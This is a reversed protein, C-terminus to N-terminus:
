SPRNKELLLKLDGNQCSTELERMTVIKGPSNNVSRETDSVLLFESELAMSAKIIANIRAIEDRIMRIAGLTFIDGHDECAVADYPTKRTPYIEYGANQILYFIERLFSDEPDAASTEPKASRTIQRLDIERGISDNLMSEIKEAVEITAASGAEYLSVSRRSIGVRSSIYGISYGLSERLKRMREGDIPMYYGGPGSFIIPKRGELYDQFSEMSLIPVAHRFYMVGQELDGVSSRKGIVVAGAGIAKSISLIEHAVESRFTDINYLVKIVYRESDKRAILDYATLGALDLDSVRYGRSSLISVADMIMEKRTVEM